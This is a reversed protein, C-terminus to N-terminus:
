CKHFLQVSCSCILVIFRNIITCKTVIGSPNVFTVKAKDAGLMVVSEVLDEGGGSKKQEFYMELAEESAFAKKTINSVVVSCNVECREISLFKGRIKKKSLKIIM